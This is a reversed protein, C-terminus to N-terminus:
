TRNAKGPLGAKPAPNTGAREAERIIAQVEASAAAVPKEVVIHKGARLADIAQPFHLRNPSALVILDLTPDALLAAFSEAVQIQPFLDPEPTRSTVVSVLELGETTQIFPAHFYRGGLGWGVLGVKFNKQAGSM